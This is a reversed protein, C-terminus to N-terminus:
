STYNRPFQVGAFSYLGLAALGWEEGSGQNRGVAGCRYTSQLPTSPTRPGWDNQGLSGETLLSQPRPGLSSLSHVRPLSPPQPQEARVERRVPLSVSAPSLGPGGTLECEPLTLGETGLVAGRPMLLLPCIVAM